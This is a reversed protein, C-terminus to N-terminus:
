KMRIIDEAKGTDGIGIKAPILNTLVWGEARKQYEFKWTSPVSDVYTGQHSSTVSVTATIVNPDRHVDVSNVVVGTLGYHTSLETAQRVLEDGDWEYMRAHRLYKAATAWDKRSVAEVLGRTAKEVRKEDTQVTARLVFLLAAAALMALGTNRMNIQGRRLGTFTVALGFVALLALLWTPADFLLTTM